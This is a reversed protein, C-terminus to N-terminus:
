QIPWFVRFRADEAATEEIETLYEEFARDHLKEGFTVAYSRLQDRILPLAAPHGRYPAMVVRGGYSQGAHVNDPLNLGELPPPPPPVTDEESAIYSEDQADTESEAPADDAPASDAEDLTTQDEVREVPIAM